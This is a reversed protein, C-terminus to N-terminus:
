LADFLTARRGRGGWLYFLGSSGLLGTVAWPWLGAELRGFQAPDSIPSSYSNASVRQAKGRWLTVSVSDGVRVSNWMDEYIDGATQSGGGADRLTLFRHARAYDHAQGRAMVGSQSKATVTRTEDRCPPLSPDIQAPDRPPVCGPSRTFLTAEQLGAQWNATVTSSIGLVSVALLGLLVPTLALRVLPRRAPSLPAPLM